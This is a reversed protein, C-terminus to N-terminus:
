WVDIDTIDKEKGCIPCVVTKCMGIGTGGLKIYPHKYVSGAVLDDASEIDKLHEHKKCFKKYAKLEKESDFHIPSMELDHKLKSIVIEMERIKASEAGDLLRQNRQELEAIRERFPRTIEDVTEQPLTIWVDVTKVVPTPTKYKPVAMSIKKTKKM